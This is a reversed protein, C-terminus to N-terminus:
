VKEGYKGTQERIKKPYKYKYVAWPANGLVRAEFKNGCHEVLAREAAM